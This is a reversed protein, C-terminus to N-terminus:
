QKKKGGKANSQQQDFQWQALDEMSMEKLKGRQHDHEAYRGYQLLANIAKRATLAKPKDIVNWLRRRGNTGDEVQVPNSDVPAVVFSRGCERIANKEDGILHFNMEHRWPSPLGLVDDLRLEDSQAWAAYLSRRMPEPRMQLWNGRGDSDPIALFESLMRDEATNTNTNSMM